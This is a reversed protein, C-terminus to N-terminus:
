VAPRDYFTGRPSFLFDTAVLGGPTVHSLTIQDGHGGDIVVDAGSKHAHHQMLDKFSDVGALKRLDLTDHDAGKTDFDTIVDKGQLRYTPDGPTAM